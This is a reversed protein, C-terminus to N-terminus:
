VPVLRLWGLAAWVILSDFEERGHALAALESVGVPTFYKKGIKTFHTKASKRSLISDPQKLNLRHQVIPLAEFFLWYPPYASTSQTRNVEL